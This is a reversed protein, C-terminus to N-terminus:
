SNEAEEVDARTELVERMIAAKIYESRSMLRWEAYLDIEDLLAQDVRFTITPYKGM